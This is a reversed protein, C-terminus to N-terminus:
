GSPASAPSTTPAARRRGRARCARAASPSSASSRASPPATSMSIASGRRRRSRRPSARSAPTSAWPSATARPTRVREVTQRLTGAKWTAVHLLPGFRESRLEDMDRLRILTPPVFTDHAPADVTKVWRDRMRERYAMLREHAEPDIVPGVDTEALTPDGVKLTDMAGAIMAIIPEAVEEQLLLLRLASCRQGASGFASAIVDATVQEPLATSDVIMANVGGTEAIFPVIPREAPELLGRAIAKATRSSGTFAVGVVRADGTLAAGAEGAGPLLQLVDRPVGAAHALAVARAAIAPTQPAPKAVVANGTVLAAAVQGTFIALPFNWPSICGWVGRGEM